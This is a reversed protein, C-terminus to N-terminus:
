LIVEKYANRDQPSSFFSSSDAFFLLWIPFLDSCFPGPLSPLSCILAEGPSIDSWDRGPSNRPRSAPSIGAISEPILYRQGFLRRTCCGSMRSRIPIIASLELSRGSATAARIPGPNQLARKGSASPRPFPAPWARLPRPPNDSWSPDPRHMLRLWVPMRVLKPFSSQRRTQPPSLGM